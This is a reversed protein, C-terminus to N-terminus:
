KEKDLRNSVVRNIFILPLLGILTILLAPLSALILQESSAYEFTAVSLTNFNFPRLILTLPLEKLIDIFVLLFGVLCSISIMPFHIKFFLTNKSAGLNLASYDIKKSIKDMGAEIPNYAVSLFRVLYSFILITLSSSIILGVDKDLLNFFYNIKKDLYLTPTIIGIAVVIGPAAYGVKSFNLIFSLFNANYIRKTFAIITAFVVILFAGIMALKLSNFTSILIDEINQFDHLFVNSFLWSIPVLLSLFIIIAVFITPLLLKTSFLLRINHQKGYSVYNEKKNKRLYKETLIVGLSFILLLSALRASSSIDDFGFWAKYIGVSLSNVGLYHVVGFDALSEMMVLTIGAVIAPRSIPIAFKLFLKIRSAGLNAASELTKMSNSNFAYKTILFVYPFLTLSLIFIAGSLTRVSPILFFFNELNLFEFLANIFGGKDTLDAYCYAMAYPPLAIPLVLLISLLNKCPINYFTIWWATSVGIVTTLFAVGLVLFISNLIYSKILYNNIHQWILYDVKISSIFIALLPISISAVFFLSLILWISPKEASIYEVLNSITNRQM